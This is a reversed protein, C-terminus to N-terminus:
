SFRKLLFERQAMSIEGNLDLEEVSSRNFDHFLIENNRSKNTNTTEFDRCSKTKFYIGILIRFHLIIGEM